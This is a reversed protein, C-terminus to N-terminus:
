MSLQSNICKENAAPQVCCDAFLVAHHNSLSCAKSWLFSKGISFIKNIKLQRCNVRTVSFQTRSTCLITWSYHITLSIMTRVIKFLGCLLVNEGVSCCHSFLQYCNNIHKVVILAKLPHRTENATSADSTKGSGCLCVLNITRHLFSKEVELKLLNMSWTEPKFRKMLQTFFMLWFLFKIKDNLVITKSISWTREMMKKAQARSDIFNWRKGNERWSHSFPPHSSHSELFSYFLDLWM